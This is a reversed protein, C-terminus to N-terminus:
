LGRLNNKPNASAHIQTSGTDFFMGTSKLSVTVMRYTQTLLALSLVKEPCTRVYFAPVCILCLEGAEDIFNWEVIGKGEIALGSSIGTLFKSKNPIQLPAWLIPRTM